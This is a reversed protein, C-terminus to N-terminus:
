RDEVIRLPHKDAALGLINRMFCRRHWTTENPEDDAGLHPLIMGTDDAGIPQGCDHACRAGIPPPEFPKGETAPADWPTGFFRM